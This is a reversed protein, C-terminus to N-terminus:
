ARAGSEQTHKHTHAHKYILLAYARREDVVKHWLPVSPLSTMTETMHSLPDFLGTDRQAAGDGLMLVACCAASVGLPPPIIPPQASVRSASRRVPGPSPRWPPRFFLTTQSVVVGTDRSSEMGVPVGVPMGVAIGASAGCGCSAGVTCRFRRPPSARWIRPSQTHSIQNQKM